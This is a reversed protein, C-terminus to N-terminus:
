QPSDLPEGYDAPSLKPKQLGQRERFTLLRAVLSEMISRVQPVNRRQKWLGIRVGSLKLPYRKPPYIYKFSALSNGILRM